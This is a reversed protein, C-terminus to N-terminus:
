LGPGRCTRHPLPRSDQERKKDRIHREAPTPNHARPDPNRPGLLHLPHSTPCAGCVCVCVCVCVRERERVTDAKVGLYVEEEGGEACLEDFDAAGMGRLLQSQPHFFRKPQAAARRRGPRVAGGGAGEGGGGASARMRKSPRADEGGGWAGPARSPAGGPPTQSPAELAGDTALWRKAGGGRLTLPTPCTRCRAGHEGRPRPAGPSPQPHALRPCANSACDGCPAM